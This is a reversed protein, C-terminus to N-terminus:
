CRPIRKFAMFLNQIQLRHDWRFTKVNNKGKVVLRTIIKREFLLFCCFLVCVRKNQVIFVVFCCLTESLIYKLKYDINLFQTPIEYFSM